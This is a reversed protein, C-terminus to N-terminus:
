ESDRVRERHRAREEIRARADLVSDQGTEFLHPTASQTHVLGHGRSGAHRVASCRQGVFPCPATPTGRARALVPVLNSRVEALGASVNGKHLHTRARNHVRRAESWPSSVICPGRATAARARQAIWDVQTQTLADRDLLPPPEQCEQAVLQSRGVLAHGLKHADELYPRCTHRCSSGAM